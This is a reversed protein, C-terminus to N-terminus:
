NVIEISGDIRESKSKYVHEYLEMKICLMNEFRRSLNALARDRLSHLNEFM